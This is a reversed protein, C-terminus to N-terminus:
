KHEKEKKEKSLQALREIEYQEQKNKLIRQLREENKLKIKMSRDLSSTSHVRALDGYNNSYEFSNNQVSNLIKSARSGDYDNHIILKSVKRSLIQGL